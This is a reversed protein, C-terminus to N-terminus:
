TQEPPVSAQSVKVGSEFLPRHSHYWKGWSSAARFEVAKEPDFNPYTYAGGKIFTLTLTKTAANYEPECAFMTSVQKPTETATIM